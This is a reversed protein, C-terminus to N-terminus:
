LSFFSKVFNKKLFVVLHVGFNQKANNQTTDNKIIVVWCGLKSLLDQKYKWFDKENLM